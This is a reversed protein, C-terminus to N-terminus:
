SEQIPRTSAKLRKPTLLSSSPYFIVPTRMSQLPDKVCNSVRGVVLLSGSGPDKCICKKEISVRFLSRWLTLNLAPCTRWIRRVPKLCKRTIIPFCTLSSHWVFWLAPQNCRRTLIFVNGGGIFACGGGDGGGGGGVGSGVGGGGGGGGGGGDGGGGDGGGGGRGGGGGGGVGSAAAAAAAAAAVAAAVAVAVAVAVAAAVAVAVAAAPRRRCRRRGHRRFGLGWLTSRFGM